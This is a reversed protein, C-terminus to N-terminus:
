RTGGKRTREKPLLVHELLICLLIGSVLGSGVIYQIVQPMEALATSPLAMVGAGAIVTLGVVFSVRRDLTLQLLDRLGIILIQAFATIFVAYGVPEPIAAVWVGLSPFFGFGMLTLCCLIFPWRSAVGSLSVLGSSAAFPVSGVTSGIGGLINGIGSFAVAKNYTAPELGGEVQVMKGMAAVSAIINALLVFGILVNTAVVGPGFTPMGWAFLRPFDLIKLGETNPVSALGLAYYIVWGAVLGFLVSISRLFNTGRMSVFIVTAIVVIGIVLSLLSLTSQQPTIGLMGKVFVRSLQLCLLIMMCGTIVPTFLKIIKGIIGTIGLLFLIVGAVLLGGMFDTRLSSLSHGLGAVVQALSIFVAWSLASPGEIVPLRHGFFVQLLSSLGTIFFLRQALSAIGASDLGVIPGIVVPIVAIQAIIFSLWQFGYLLTRKRGPYDHLGFLLESEDRNGAM